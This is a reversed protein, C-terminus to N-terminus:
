NSERNVKSGVQDADVFGELDCTGGLEQRFDTTSTLRWITTRGQATPHDDGDCYSDTHMLRLTCCFTVCVKTTSGEGEATNKSIQLGELGYELYDRSNRGITIQEFEGM